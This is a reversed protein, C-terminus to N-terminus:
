IILDVEVNSLIYAPEYVITNSKKTIHIESLDKVLLGEDCLWECVEFIDHPTIRDNFDKVIVSLAKPELVEDFYNLLQKCIVGTHKRVYSYVLEISCSLNVSNKREDMLKIYLKEIIPDNYKLAQLIVERTPISGNMVVEISAIEKLVEIMWIYSYRPDSKVKLWKEAKYLLGLLYSCNHILANFKDKEGLQCMDEFIEKLSEDKCYVMTGLSYYSYAISTQNAKYSFSKFESRTYVSGEIHIDDEVLCLGTKLKCADNVIITMDIDSKEWVKDYSLSGMVIVALINSDAKLRNCMTEVALMYRRQLDSNEFTVRWFDIPIAHTNMKRYAMPTIDFIKKFARSFTEPSNFGYDLAIDLINKDSDIIQSAAVSLKRKKIYDLVPIGIISQFIRNFHNPSYFCLASLTEVSIKEKIHQEIYDLVKQLKNYYDSM